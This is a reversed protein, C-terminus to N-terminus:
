STGLKADITEGETADDNTLRARAASVQYTEAVETVGGFTDLPEWEGDGMDVEVSLDTELTATARVTLQRRGRTEVEVLEGTEDLPAESVTSYQYAPTLNVM